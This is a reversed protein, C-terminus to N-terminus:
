NLSESILPLLYQSKITLKNFDQYNMCFRLSGDLKRDFLIPAGISSKSLCIFGDALNTKIYTKLTESVASGLSYILEFLPQKDEVLKIAYDNMGTYKPFEVVNEALFINSYSSYKAPAAM